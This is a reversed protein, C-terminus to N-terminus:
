KFKHSSENILEIAESVPIDFFERDGRTRVESLMSHIYKEFDYPRGTQISFAIEWDDMVGANNIQHLRHEPSNTTMGIKCIGPYANNTLIYVFGGLKNRVSNSNNNSGIYRYYVVTDWGDDTPIRTFHTVRSMKHGGDVDPRIDVELYEPNDTIADPSIYKIM